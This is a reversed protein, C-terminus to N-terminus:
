ALATLENTSFEADTTLFSDSSFKLFSTIRAVRSISDRYVFMEWWNAM